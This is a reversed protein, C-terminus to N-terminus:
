EDEHLHLPKSGRRWLEKIHNLPSILDLLPHEWMLATERRGVTTVWLFPAQHLCPSFNSLWWGPCFSAVVGAQWPICPWSWLYTDDGSFAPFDFDVCLSQLSVKIVCSRTLWGKKTVRGHGPSKETWSSTQAQNKHDLRLCSKTISSHIVWNPHETQLPHSQYWAGFTLM